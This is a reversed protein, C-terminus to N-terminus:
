KASRERLEKLLTDITQKFMNKQSNTINELENKPYAFLFYTKEYSEFDVYLVRIGGSKGRNDIGFRAKRLGGTGRILDGIDPRELIMNELGMLDDDNLNLADWSKEFNNTHIFERRM